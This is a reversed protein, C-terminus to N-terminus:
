GILIWYIPTVLISVIRFLLMDYNNFWGYRITSLCFIRTCLRSRRSGESCRLLFTFRIEFWVIATSFATGTSSSRNCIIRVINTGRGTVSIFLLFPSSIFFIFTHYDIGTIRSVLSKYWSITFTTTM